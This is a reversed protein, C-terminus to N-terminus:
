SLFISSSTWMELYGYIKNKIRVQAMKNSDFPKKPSYQTTFEENQYLRTNSM